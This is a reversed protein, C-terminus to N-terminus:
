AYSLLVHFHLCLFICPLGDRALIDLDEPKIVHYTTALATLFNGGIAFCFSRRSFHERVNRMEGRSTCSAGTATCKQKEDLLIFEDTANTSDGSDSWISLTADWENISPSKCAEPNDMALQNHGVLDPNQVEARDINLL